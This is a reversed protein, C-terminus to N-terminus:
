QDRVSSPHDPGHFQTHSVQHGRTQPPLCSCLHQGRFALCVPRLASPSFRPHCVSDSSTRSSQDFISLDGSDVLRVFPRVRARCGLRYRIRRHVPSPASSSPGPSCGRGSSQCRVMVYSGLPLLRGLLDAGHGLDSSRRGELATPPIADPPSRGSHPSDPVVHGGLLIALASSSTFESVLSLVKQIRAQTPFARLPSSVNRSLRDNSNSPTFEQLNVSVGLRDCLSLSVPERDGQIRGLLSGRFHFVRRLSSQRM